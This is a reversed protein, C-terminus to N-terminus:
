WPAWAEIFLPLDRTRAEALARSYDDSQFPLPRMDDREAGGALAVAGLTLALAVPLPRKM